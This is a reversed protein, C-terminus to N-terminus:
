LPLRFSFGLAVYNKFSTKSLGIGGSLDVKMNNNISYAFGMDLNHQPLEAKQIFGFAEIYAYWKQSLTFGPAFTYLWSPAPNTGDWEAGVNYGLAIKNTISNQMALRFSPQLHPTRLNKTALFPLGMHLILSTKPRAKKEEFLSIKSGIVVPEIGTTKVPNPILHVYETIPNIELRLEARNSIGYKLLATPHLLRYNRDGSNEKEFGLEAQFYKKPVIVPTESQDPRDTEISSQAFAPLFCIVTLLITLTFKM